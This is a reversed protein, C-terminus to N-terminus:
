FREVRPSLLCLGNEEWLTTVDYLRYRIDADPAIKDTFIIYITSYRRINIV